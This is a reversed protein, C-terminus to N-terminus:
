NSPVCRMCDHFKKSRIEKLKGFDVAFQNKLDYETFDGKFTKAKKFYYRQKFIRFVAEVMSNSFRIDRKAIFHKIGRSLILDTPKAAINEGGGDSIIKRKFEPVMDFSKKFSELSINQNKSGALTWGIIMRSYNDVVVQLYAKQGKGYKIETIDIHWYENVKKARLGQHYYKKVKKKMNRNIGFLKMYKYWSDLSCHLINKRRCYYMLSTTSFMQYKESTAIRIITKVEEYSLQNPKTIQCKKKQLSCGKVEIEWRYYKNTTMGLVDLIEKLPLLELFEDILDIISEKHEKSVPTCINQIKFIKKLCKRLLLNITKEKLLETDGQKILSEYIEIKDSTVNEKSEKLWYNITTRPIKLEPFLNKNGSKIIMKKVMPDHKKYAM